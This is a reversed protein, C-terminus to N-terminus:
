LSIVDNATTANKSFFPSKPPIQTNVIFYQEVMKNANTLGHYGLFVLAFPSLILSDSLDQQVVSVCEFLPQGVMVEFHYLLRNKKLIFYFRAFKWEISPLLMYM